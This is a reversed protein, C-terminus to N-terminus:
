NKLLAHRILNSGQHRHLPRVHPKFYLRDDLFIEDLFSLLFFFSEEIYICRVLFQSSEEQQLSRSRRDDITLFVRRPRRRTYEKKREKKREKKIERTRRKRQWGKTCPRQVRSRVIFILPVIFGVRSVDSRVVMCLQRGGESNNM